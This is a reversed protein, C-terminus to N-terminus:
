ERNSDLVLGNCSKAIISKLREIDLYIFDRIMLGGM